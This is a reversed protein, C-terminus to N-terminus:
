MDGGGQWSQHPHPRPSGPGPTSQNYTGSFGQSGPLFISLKGERNFHLKLAPTIPPAVHVLTQKLTRLLLAGVPGPPHGDGPPPVTVLESAM